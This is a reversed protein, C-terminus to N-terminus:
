WSGTTPSRSAALPQQRHDDTGPVRRDLRRRRDRRPGVGADGRHLRLRRRGPQGRQRRLGRVGHRPRRGAARRDAEVSNLTGYDVGGSFQLVDVQDGTDGDRNPDVAREYAAVLVDDTSNGVDWVKYAYLKARPAVGAGVSGPVGIGCCTGAVHTGHGDRDLPDFDPRPIDNSADDDLVDYNSGVFDFGGIVKDTPFTGREVVNPDNQEYAAVTGPGGFDAHTYDIGTDVVAVRMGQGRVGLRDWVKTAGIFPVSSENSRVVVNVPQVSPSTTERRAMAEAARATMAASFGNVLRSYRFM